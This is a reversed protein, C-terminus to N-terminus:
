KRTVYKDSINIWGAGSKLYGWTGGDKSKATKTITYTGKDKITGNIKYETGAGSRINLADVIVKVKFSATSSSQTSQTSQTTSQTTGSKKVLKLEKVLFNLLGQASMDAHKETLIIPVDTSSDMFGNEILFSPMKTNKIVYFGKKIVKQARNGKLETLGVLYNYLSNAQTAREAKDSYYFVVTGGGAGGNVGANHHISIYIDAGWNNAKKVRDALSIDKAGTTDDVRLIECNYSELLKQLKNAIRSNLTWERTEKPDLKKMCRKGATVLSHGADLAIKSM